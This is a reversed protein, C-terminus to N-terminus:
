EKEDLSLSRKLLTTSSIPSFYHGDTTIILSKEKGQESAYFTKQSGKISKIFHETNIGKGLTELDIIAVIKEQGILVDGGLHLFM